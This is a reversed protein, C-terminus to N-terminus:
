NRCMARLGQEITSGGHRSLNLSIAAIVLGAAANFVSRQATGVAFGTYSGPDLPPTPVIFAILLLLSTMLIPVVAAAMGLSRQSILLSGVAFATGLIISADSGLQQLAFIRGAAVSDAASATQAVDILGVVAPWLFAFLVIPNHPVVSFGLLGEWVLPWVLVGVTAVGAGILRLKERKLEPDDEGDDDDDDDDDDDGANNANKNSGNSTNSYVGVNDDRSGSGDMSKLTQVTHVVVWLAVGVLAINFAKLWTKPICPDLPGGVDQRPDAGVPCKVTEEVAAERKAADKHQARQKADNEAYVMVTEEVQDDYPDDTRSERLKKEVKAEEITISPKANKLGQGTQGTQGKQLDNSDHQNKPDVGRCWKDQTRNDLCYDYGSEYSKQRKPNPVNNQNLITSSAKSYNTPTSTSSHTKFTWWTPIGGEPQLFNM